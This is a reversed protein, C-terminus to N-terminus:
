VSCCLCADLYMIENNQCCWIVSIADVPHKCPRQLPLTVMEKLTDEVNEVAGIDDFTVGIDTPPIFDARLRKGYDNEIVVEKLSKNLSEKESQVGQPINLGYKFSETAIMPKSDKITGHMFHYSIAWSIIKGVNCYRCPKWSCHGPGKSELTLVWLYQLNREGYYHSSDSLHVIHVHAGELLGGVITVDVPEEIAAVVEVGPFIFNWELFQSKGLGHIMQGSSKYYSGIITELSHLGNETELENLTNSNPRCIM